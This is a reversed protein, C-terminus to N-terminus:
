TVNFSGVILQEGGPAISMVGPALDFILHAEDTGSPLPVTSLFRAHVVPLARWYGATSAM